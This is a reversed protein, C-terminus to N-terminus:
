CALLLRGLFCLRLLLRPAHLCLLKSRLRRLCNCRFLLPQLRRLCSGSCRFLLPQLRRLCSGSSRFLLPQLRLLSRRPLNLLRLGRLHM